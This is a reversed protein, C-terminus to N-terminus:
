ASTLVKPEEKPAELITCEVFKELLELDVGEIVPQAAAPTKTIVVYSNVNQRAVFSINDADLTIKSVPLKVFRSM